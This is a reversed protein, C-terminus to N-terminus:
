IQVFACNLVKSIYISSCSLGKGQFQQDLGFIQRFLSVLGVDTIECTQGVLHNHGIGEQEEKSAVM